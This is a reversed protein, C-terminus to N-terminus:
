QMADRVVANTAPRLGRASTPPTTRTTSPMRMSISRALLAPAAAVTVPRPRANAYRDVTPRVIVLGAVIMEKAASAAVSPMPVLPDNTRGASTTAPTSSPDAAHHHMRTRAAEISRVRRVGRTTRPMLAKLPRAIARSPIKATTEAKEPQPHLGLLLTRARDGPLVRGFDQLGRGTAATELQHLVHERAAQRSRWDGDGHSEGALMDFLAFGHEHALRALEQVVRDADHVSTECHRQEIRRHAAGDVGGQRGALAVRRELDLGVKDPRDRHISTAHPTLTGDDVAAAGDGSCLAPNDRDVAALQECM